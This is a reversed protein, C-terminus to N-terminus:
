NSHQYLIEKKDNQVQFELYKFGDRPIVRIWKKYKLFWQNRISKVGKTLYACVFPHAHLFLKNKSHVLSQIQDQIKDVLVIPSEIKGDPNPNNELTNVQKQPRVRQRTIQVLGFKSPPLIKHKAKDISMVEKLYEYLEKKHQSSTMDIFDVVIIGGIDRLRLQRAIEAAALKNIHLASDEQSKLSATVNGSNVDVVHLAETHEIILYAGKAQYINVHKGFLQKIQKDINYHEFIPIHSDYYQVLKVKEPAIIELYDKIEDVLDQNDCVINVFDENFNDRLISSAKDLESLIKVPPKGKKINKFCINNWKNLLYRLDSQLEAVTKNEAVTRIILGFGNPRIQEGISKLRNKEEQTSISRSISTKSSFPILVLYRGALSVESSIRPGKTSIPEKSVQVLIEQNPSLIDQIVGDKDIDEEFSFSNLKPSNIKGQSVGKCYKLSSKIQPGLDHYHLFADKEYGINVFCANLSPALKKVKGYVIDGVSFHDDVNEEHLEQIRGNELIVIRVRDEEYSLILEKSM